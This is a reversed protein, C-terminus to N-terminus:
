PKAAEKVDLAITLDVHARGGAFVGHGVQHLRIIRGTEADINATGVFGAKGDTSAAGVGSNITIELTQIGSVVATAVLKAEGDVKAPGILRNANAYSLKWTDGM